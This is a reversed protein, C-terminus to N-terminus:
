LISVPRSLLAPTHYAGWLQTRSPICMSVTARAEQPLLPPSQPCESVFPRRGGQGPARTRVGLRWAPRPGAADLSARALVSGGVAAGRDSRHVPKQNQKKDRHPSNLCLCPSPGPTKDATVRCQSWSTGDSLPSSLRQAPAASPEQERGASPTSTNGCGQPHLSTHPPSSDPLCAKGRCM